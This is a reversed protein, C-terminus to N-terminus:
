RVRLVMKGLRGQAHQARHAEAANDLSFERIQPLRLEGNVVLNALRELRDRDRSVAPRLSTVDSRSTAPATAGSAIFAARGGPKLVAFSRPTVDGGVPDFVADYRQGAETFDSRTFDIVEDAGLQVLYDTHEGRATVVVTAGRKKALQLAISGVGGAAGHILVTEGAKVDLTDEVSVAGTTGILALAAAQSFSFGDPIRGVIAPDIAIQEAYAGDQGMATVAFVRDGEKIHTVGAPVVKAIGAFDRGPVFPLKLAGGFSGQRLDLDVANVSVAHVDVVMDAETRVPEAVEGFELVEPGGQKEFYVAKM